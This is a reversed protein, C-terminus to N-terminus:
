ALDGLLTQLRAKVNKTLEANTTVCRGVNEGNVLVKYLGNLVKEMITHRETHKMGNVLDCILTDNRDFKGLGSQLKKAYEVTESLLHPYVTLLALEAGRFPACDVGPRKRNGGPVDRVLPTSLPGLVRRYHVLQDVSLQRNASGTIFQGIINFMAAEKSGMAGQPDDFGLNEAPRRKIGGDRRRVDDEDLGLLVDVEIETGTEIVATCRTQGDVFEHKRSFAIGEQGNTMTANKISAKLAELSNLKLHRNYPMREPSICFEAIEKTLIMRAIRPKQTGYDTDVIDAFEEVTLRVPQEPRFQLYSPATLRFALKTM